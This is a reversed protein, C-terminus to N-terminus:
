GKKHAGKWPHGFPQPAVNELLSAEGKEIDRAVGRVHKRLRELSRLDRVLRMSKAKDQLLQAQLAATRVQSPDKDAAHHCVALISVLHEIRKGFRQLPLQARTLELQYFSNVILYVWRQRRLKREAYKAYSRLDEPLNAYRASWAAPWLKGPLHLLELLSNKAVWGAMKWFTPQKLIRFKATFVRGPYKLFTSPTIRLIREAAPLPNGEADQNISQLVGLLGALHDEVFNGTIDKVMGMLILDDEGEVVGFVHINPRAESVRSSNQFTRGGLVRECAVLSEMSTGSAASKTLDRLGALDVGAADQELSLHSLARSQLAGGLMKGLALRPLEHKIVPGGVGDRRQAYYAADAAFMRQYGAAMSALMCRGMRLCYFLVEVGDAQIQNDRPIPFNKFTLKSNFNSVFADVGSSECKFSHDSGDEIDAPPLQLVFLGVKRGGKGVRAVIGVLSDYTANTIYLKSRDGEAHLRWCDSEEDLEVYAQVKKANVGVKVETLGFGMLRGEAIMPLFLKKQEATGYAQLSGAGITLEGSIEVALAGLGNAALEEEFIALEPYSGELGGFEKPVTFGYAKEESIQDRLLSSLKRDATFAEGKRLCDLAREMIPQSRKAGGTSFAKGSRFEDPDPAPGYILREVLSKQHSGLKKQAALAADDLAGVDRASAADGAAALAKAATSSSASTTETTEKRDPSDGPSTQPNSPTTELSPEAPNRTM